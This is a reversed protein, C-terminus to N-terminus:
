SPSAGACSFTWRRELTPCPPRSPGIRTSPSCSGTESACATTGSSSTSTSPRRSPMPPVRATTLHSMNGLMKSFGRMQSALKDSRKFDLIHHVGRAEDWLILDISGALDADACVIEKETNWAVIKQLHRKAFDRVIAMEPEWWRHPLGNFFCEALWHAETGRHSAIRGNRAWGESIELDTCARTFAFEEAEDEEEKWHCSRLVARVQRLDSGMAMSHPQVVAVTKGHITMLAGDEPTWEELPRLGCVYERRPWAQTRSAKMLAIADSAVFPREHEHAIATVSASTPVGDFTYVHPEEYFRLRDDLPHRHLEQLPKDWHAPLVYGEDYDKPPPLASAQQQQM